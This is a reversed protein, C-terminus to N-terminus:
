SWLVVVCYSCYFKTTAFEAWNEASTKRAACQEGARARDRERAGGRGSRMKEKWFSSRACRSTKNKTKKKRKEREKKKVITSTKMEVKETKKGRM